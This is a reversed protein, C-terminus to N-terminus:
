TFGASIIETSNSHGAASDRVKLRSDHQFHFLEVLDADVARGSTMQIDGYIVIILNGNGAVGAGASHIIGPLFQGIGSTDHGCYDKGIAAFTDAFRLAITNEKSKM